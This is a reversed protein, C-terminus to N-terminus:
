KCVIENAPPVEPPVKGGNLNWQAAGMALRDVPNQLHDHAPHAYRMTM